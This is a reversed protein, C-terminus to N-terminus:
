LRSGPRRRGVAVDAASPEGAGLCAPSRLVTLRAPSEGACLLASCRGRLREASLGSGLVRCATTLGTGSATGAGLANGSGHHLEGTATGESGASLKTEELGSFGMIDAGIGICAGTGCNTGGLPGAKGGAQGLSGGGGGGGATFDYPTSGMGAAATTGGVCGLTTGQGGPGGTGGSITRALSDSMRCATNM